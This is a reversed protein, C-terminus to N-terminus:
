LRGEHFLQVVQEMALRNLEGEEYGARLSSALETKCLRRYDAESYGARIFPLMDAANVLAALCRLIEEPSLAKGGPELARVFERVSLDPSRRLEDWVHSVSDAIEKRSCHQTRAAEAIVDFHKRKM